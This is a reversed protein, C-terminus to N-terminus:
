PVDVVLVGNLIPKSARKGSILPWVYLRDDPDLRQAAGNANWLGLITVQNSASRTAFIRSTGRFIEIEYGTAGVTPTWALKRPLPHAASAKAAAALRATGLRGSTTTPAARARSAINARTRTAARASTTTTTRTSAAKTGSGVAAPQEIAPADSSARAEETLARPMAAIERSPDGLFALGAGVTAVVTAVSVLVLRLGVRREPQEGEPSALDSAALRRIAAVAEEGAVPDDEVSRLLTIRELTDEPEPLSVRALEALDRDVLVLEPSM